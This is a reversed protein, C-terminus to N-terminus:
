KFPLAKFLSHCINYFVWFFFMQIYSNNNKTDDKDLNIEAIATEETLTIDKQIKINECSKKEFVKFRVIDNVQFVYDTGDENKATIGISAIDGRTLKITTGDIKYM